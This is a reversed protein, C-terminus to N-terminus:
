PTKLFDTFKGLTHLEHGQIVVFLKQPRHNLYFAALRLMVTPCKIFIM